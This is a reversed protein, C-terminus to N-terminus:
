GPPPNDAEATRRGRPQDKMLRRAAIQAGLTRPWTRAKGLGYALWNLSRKESGVTRETWVSWTGVSRGEISDGELKDLRRAAPPVVPSPLPDHETSEIRVLRTGTPSEAISPPTQPESDSRRAWRSLRQLLGTGSENGNWLDSGHRHNDWWYWAIFCILSHLFCM